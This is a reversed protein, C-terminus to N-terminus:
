LRYNYDARMLDCITPYKNYKALKNYELDGKLWNLADNFRKDTWQQNTLEKHIAELYEARPEPLQFLYGFHIMQETIEKLTM